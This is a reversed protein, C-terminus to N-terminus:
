ASRQEQHSTDDRTTLFLSAAEKQVEEIKRRMRLVREKREPDGYVPSEWFLLELRTVVCTLAIRLLWFRRRCSKTLGM